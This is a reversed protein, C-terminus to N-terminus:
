LITVEMSDFGVTLSYPEVKVVEHAGKVRNGGPLQNCKDNPGWEIKLLWLQEAEWFTHSHKSLHVMVLNLQPNLGGIM